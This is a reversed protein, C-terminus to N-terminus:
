NHWITGKITAAGTQTVSIDGSSLGWFYPSCGPPNFWSGLPTIIINNGGPCPTSLSTVSVTTNPNTSASTVVVGYVTYTKGTVTPVVSVPTPNSVTFDTPTGAICAQIPLTPTATPTLTGTNTPTFSPYYQGINGGLDTYPTNTKTPTSTITPTNTPSNTPTNTPTNSGTPTGTVVTLNLTPTTTPIVPTVLTVGVVPGGNYQQFGKVEITIGFLLVLPWLGIAAKLKGSQNLIKM